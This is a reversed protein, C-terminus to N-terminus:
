GRLGALVYQMGGMVCYTDVGVVVSYGVFMCVLYNLRGTDLM